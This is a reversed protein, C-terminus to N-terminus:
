FYRRSKIIELINIEEAMQIRAIELSEMKKSKKCRKCRLCDPTMDLLYEYINCWRPPKIAIGKSKTRNQGEINNDIKYLRSALYNDFNNYNFLALLVM